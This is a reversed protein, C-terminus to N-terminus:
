VNNNNKIEITNESNKIQEDLKEQIQDITTNVDKQLGEEGVELDRLSQIADNFDSNKKAEKIKQKIQNRHNIEEFKDMKNLVENNNNEKNISISSEMINNDEIKNTFNNESVKIIEQQKEQNEEKRM